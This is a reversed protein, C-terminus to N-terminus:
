AVTLRGRRYLLALFLPGGLLATVTGVPPEGGFLPIALRALLDSLMLFAAGGLASLPVLQRQDPGFALRLLHPVILGVFGILGSLVVAGAVSASAALLLWRRTRAVSVGLSAADEDGLTLLNLRGSLAMMVGIAVAQLLASLLLTGMNEYGLAGALWYLLEGLRDPDSLTKVLTIAASAFANFIVGTLLAAYPARGGQGQSAALVFLTAAVAGFFAFLAPASIRELGGGLGSAVEGVTAFGLALALTAGLAAGGSVGLVFPDALPNRLVGQLTAGSAALGAGIIAALLARPLRLSWFIATDISSPDGFVASFPISQDGFLIALLFAGLLVVLFAGGLGFVRALTFGKM